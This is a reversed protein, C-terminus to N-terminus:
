KLLFVAVISDHDSLGLPTTPDFKFEAANPDSNRIPIKVSNLQTFLDGTVMIHDLLNKKGRYIYTYRDEEPLATIVNKLRESGDSRFALKKYAADEFTANLDGTVIVSRNPDEKLKADIYAGLYEGQMQRRPDYRPGGLKSKFHNVAVTLNRVGELSQSLGTYKFDVVLPARAYLRSPDLQNRGDDGRFSLQPNPEAVSVVELPGRYMIGVSVGRGDNSPQVLGKYGLSKMAPHNLLDDLITQNEIENLSIINPLGLTTTITLALKNLRVDYEEKTPVPDRTLPNDVTDFFNWLNLQAVSLTPGSAAATPMLRV